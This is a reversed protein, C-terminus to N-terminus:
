LRLRNYLTQKSLKSQKRYKKCEIYIDAEIATWGMEQAHGTKNPIFTEWNHQLDRQGMKKNLEPYSSLLM